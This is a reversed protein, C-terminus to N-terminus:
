WGERSERPPALVLRRRPAVGLCTEVAGFLHQTTALPLSSCAWKEAGPPTSYDRRYPGETSSQRAPSFCWSSMESRPAQARSEGHRKRPQFLKEIGALRNLEHLNVRLPVLGLDKLASTLVQTRALHRLIHQFLSRQEWCLAM